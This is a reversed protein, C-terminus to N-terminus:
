TIGGLASIGTNRLVRPVIDLGMLNAPIADAAVVEHPTDASLGAAVIVDSPLV